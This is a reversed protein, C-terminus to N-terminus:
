ADDDIVLSIDTCDTYNVMISFVVEEKGIICM